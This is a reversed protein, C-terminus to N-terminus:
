CQININIIYINRVICLIFVLGKTKIYGKGSNQSLYVGRDYDIACSCLVGFLSKLKMYFISIHNIIQILIGEGTGCDSCLLICVVLPIYM